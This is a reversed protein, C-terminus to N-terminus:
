AIIRCPEPSLAIAGLPSFTRPQCDLGFPATPPYQINREWGTAVRHCPAPGQVRERTLSPTNDLPTIRRAARARRKGSPVADRRHHSSQVPRLTCYHSFQLPDIRDFPLTPDPSASIKPLKLWSTFNSPVITSTRTTFLSRPLDHTGWTRHCHPSTPNQPDNAM